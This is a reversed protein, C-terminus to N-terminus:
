RTPDKRADRQMARLMSQEPSPPSHLLAALTEDASATAAPETVPAAAPGTLRALRQRMAKILSDTVEAPSPQPEGSTRIEEARARIRDRISTSAPACSVAVPAAAARPSPSIVSGLRIRHGDLLVTGGLSVAELALPSLGLSPLLETTAVTGTYRTLPSSM